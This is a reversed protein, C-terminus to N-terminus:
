NIEIFKYDPLSAQATSTSIPRRDTGKWGASGESPLVAARAFSVDSSLPLRVPGDTLGAPAPSGGRAEPEPPFCLLENFYRMLLITM